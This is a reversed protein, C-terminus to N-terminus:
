RPLERWRRESAALRQWAPGDTEASSAAASACALRAALRARVHAATREGLPLESAPTLVARAAAEARAAAQDCEDLLDRGVPKGRLKAARQKGALHAAGDLRSGRAAAVDVEGSLLALTTVDPLAVLTVQAEGYRVTGHPTAIVVEAGPRAGIGTGTKITGRALLVQEDGLRCALALAPGRLTIERGSTSHQVTAEAGDALTLWHVGDIAGREGVPGESTSLQGRVGIVRCPPEGARGASVSAAPESSPAASAAMPASSRAATSASGAASPDTRGCAGALLPAGVLLIRLAGIM